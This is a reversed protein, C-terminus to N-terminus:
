LLRPDGLQSRLLEMAERSQEEVDTLLGLKELVLSQLEIYWELLFERRVYQGSLYLPIKRRDHTVVAISFWHVSDQSRALTDTFDYGFFLEQILAYQEDVRYELNKIDAFAVTIRGKSGDFELRKAKPYITCNGLTTTFQFLATGRRTVKFKGVPQARFLAVWATDVIVAAALALLASAYNM